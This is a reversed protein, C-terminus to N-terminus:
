GRVTLTPDYVVASIRRRNSTRKRYGGLYDMVIDGARNCHSNGTMDGILSAVDSQAPNVTEGDALFMDAIPAPIDLHLLGGLLCSFVLHAKDSVSAYTASSGYTPRTSDVVHAGGTAQLNANSLAAVFPYFGIAEGDGGNSLGSSFYTTVRATYGKNDRFEMWFLFAM